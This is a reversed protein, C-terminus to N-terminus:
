RPVLFAKRPAKRAKPTAPVAPIYKMASPWHTNPSAVKMTEFMPMM